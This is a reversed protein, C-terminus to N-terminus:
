QPRQTQLLERLALLALALLALQLPLDFARANILLALTGTTGGSGCPNSESKAGAARRTPPPPPPPGLGGGSSPAPSLMPAEREPFAPFLPADLSTLSSESLYLCAWRSSHASLIESPKQSKAASPPTMTSRLISSVNSRTMVLACCFNCFAESGTVANIARPSKTDSIQPRLPFCAVSKGSREALRISSLLPDLPRTRM